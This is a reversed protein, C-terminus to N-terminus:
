RGITAGIRKASSRFSFVALLYGQNLMIACFPRRPKRRGKEMAFVSTEASLAPEDDPMICLPLWHDVQTFRGLKSDYTRNIAYDLSTKESRDYSTFRKNNTILPPSTEANLSNGFPLHAQESSTGASQNTVTKTGLRDPHNFEINESGGNPTITALQSGGLYTYSKTWVPVAVTFETFEALTTGGANLFTKYRDLAPDHSQVRANTSDYQFRELQTQDAANRIINLRNAADYEYKLWIGNEGFAKILNGNVDYEFSDTGVSSTIRNTANDYALNSVNPTAPNLAVGDLPISSSDAAVGTATVNTRNGYRDYQYTQNWLNGTPGGKAKTLRGLVDFEYERNKASNLNDTIKTLHGTKGTLSGVANNRAYDYSLNIFETSNKTAKQNTLLGTQPDFTYDETVQNTGAAGIKMQTTQDSANYVVNGAQQSGNYTMATLRSATDFTHAVIKRPSGSLGYQAPYKVEKVRDLTDYLYSMTMPYSERYKIKQTFESVRGEVDYTYAQNVMFETDIQEVRMKDGATMYNFNSPPASNIPISTDRPGATHYEIRQLRNLPDDGGGWFQYIYKAKIGRADTKQTLNSRDDYFFANSSEAGSQGARCM